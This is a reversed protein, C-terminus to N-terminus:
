LFINRVYLLISHIIKLFVTGYKKGFIWMSEGEAAEMPAKAEVVEAEAEMAVEEAEAEMAVEEAEAEWAEAAEAATATLCSFIL